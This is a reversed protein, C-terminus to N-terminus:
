NAAESHSLGWVYSALIKIQDETLLAGHAPMEGSRGNLITHVIVDRSSSNFWVDDTLNPAGLLRNGKGDAMHCAICIQDYKEKGKAILTADHSLGSLSRVFHAVNNADDPTLVSNWAAMVGIRGNTIIDIVDNPTTVFKDGEQSGWKWDNDTLNPFNPSGKADSGHCQACNNLFLREGLALAEPDKSLDEVSKGDFKAYIPKMQEAHASLEQEVKNQSTFNLFGKFDGLAPYLFIISVGIVCLGLYMYIWWRPIPYNFETIGDWEHGTDTIETQRKLWKRQSWLLWVCFVIGLITIITIWYSWGSSFFDSM